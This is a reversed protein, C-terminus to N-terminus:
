GAALSDAATAAIPTLETEPEDVSGSDLLDDAADESVDEGGGVRRGRPPYLSPVIGDADGHHRRLYSVASKCEDYARAFLTFAQARLHRPHKPEELPDEKIDRGGLVKTLEASLTIARDAMELTVPAKDHVRDWLEHYLRGLSQLDDATDVHGKGSRIAAVRENSVFGALALVEAAGLMLARLPTAEQLLVALHATAASGETALDHTHLVAWAYTGMNEVLRFDLDVLKAMIPLLPKIREAVVVGRRAARAMDLNLPGLDATLVALIETRVSDFAAPATQAALTDLTLLASTSQKTKKAM